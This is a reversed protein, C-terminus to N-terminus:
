MFQLSNKLIINKCWRLFNIDVQNFIFPKFFKICAWWMYLCISLNSLKLDAVYSAM